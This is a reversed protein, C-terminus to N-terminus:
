ERRTFILDQFDQLLHAGILADGKRYAALSQELLSLLTQREEESAADLETLSLASRLEAFARDLTMQGDQPLYDRRPFQDPASLVVYGIFDYLSDIDTVRAM